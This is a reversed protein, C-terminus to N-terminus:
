NKNIGILQYNFRRDIEEFGLKSYLDKVTDNLDAHLVIEKNKNNDVIYKILSTCVRINRYDKDVLMEDFLVCENNIYPLVSGVLKNNLYAGIYNQKVSLRKANNIVFEEGYVDKYEKLEHEILENIEPKKFVLEDNIKWSSTDKNNLSMAILVEEEMNHKNILEKNGFFKVFNDGRRRQYNVADEFEKDTFSEDYEFFNHDYKIRLNDDEYKVLNDSFKFEKSYMSLMEKEVKRINM